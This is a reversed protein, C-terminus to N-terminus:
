RKEMWNGTGNGVWVNRGDFVLSDIGSTLTASGASTFGPVTYATVVGTQVSVLLNTGDYVMSTPSATGVTNSTVSGTGDGAFTYIKAAAGDAVCVTSGAMVIRRPTGGTAKSTLPAAQSVNLRYVTGTSQSSVWVGAGDSAMGSAQPITWTRAATGDTTDIPVAYVTNLAQSYTYVYGGLIALGRQQLGFMFLESLGDDPNIKYIGQGASVWIRTGDYAAQTPFGLTNGLNIARVQKGSRASIQRVRGATIEPVFLDFGDFGADGPTSQAPFAFRFAPGADIVNTRLTSVKLASVGTPGAPGQPGAAGTSGQAGAPGVLGQPGQPGQPGAPGGSPGVPGVPGPDGQPGASGAPGTAGTAGAPGAPGSAGPPANLVRGAVAAFQSMGAIQVPQRTEMQFFAKFAGSSSIAVELYRPKGDFLHPGFELKINAVGNAVDVGEKELTTGLQNGGFAEDFMRVQVDFKGNCPQGGIEMILPQHFTGYRQIFRESSASAGSAAILMAACVVAAVAAMRGTPRGIMSRESM